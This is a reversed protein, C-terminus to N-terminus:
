YAAFVIAANHGGVAFSNSVAYRYDNRRAEGAIVDLEIEPDLETVNLTPPSIGDRLAQATLVAEIAGASGLSHGLAAKPAYVAPTHTGLVNRIARAETLDGYVTGGASANVYDIDAPALGAQRIAQAIAEGEMEGEPEPAVDHYADYKISAGLVRALINAGRAKAHEETELLMMAGGEGLVMGDRSKDFPRSAGEPDANNASLMGLASFTAMPVAEIRAEVGGCVAVDADGFVIHQWGQQIAAAGSADSLVPSMIGARAKLDLGVAAAPANPMHMQVVLPMKRVARMGEAKMSEYLGILVQTSTLAQGVSIALRKPDVEPSGANAWLRRGLVAAMKQMYSMRRVEVRSLQEDFDEQLKAGIRVEFDFQDLFPEDLVGVGSRGDLLLRWTDEADPALPTTSAVATVVVDPRKGGNTHAM